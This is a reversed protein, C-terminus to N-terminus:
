KRGYRHFIVELVGFQDTLLGEYGCLRDDWFRWDVGSKNGGYVLAGAYGECLELLLRDAETTFGCQYLAMLFHRAQSHTRGGNQYYGFPFGQMIDALDEDPVCWLNAPLGYTANPVGVKTMEALLKACIDRAQRAPVLGASIACGNVMLFAYDHLKEEKCRWGALWGTAPNLFTPVYNAHLRAAWEGLVASEGALGQRAFIAALKTLAPYLIANAFADKWGFSTVDFWCTSWQGTGSVGTRWKSEILGDGDLDRARMAALRTRIRELRAHFWGDTAGRELYDALGRLVAAGTMLYEDQADHIAGADVIRGDAYSQGGDLWRELSV